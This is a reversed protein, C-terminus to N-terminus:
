AHIPPLKIKPMPPVKRQRRQFPKSHALEWVKQYPMREKIESAIQSEHKALWEEVSIVREYYFWIGYQESLLKLGEAFLSRKRPRRWGKRGALKNLRACAQEYADEERLVVEDWLSHEINSLWGACYRSGSYERVAACMLEGVALQEVTLKKGKVANKNKSLKKVIQDISNKQELLRNALELSLWQGGFAEHCVTWIAAQEHTLGRPPCKDNEIWRRRM